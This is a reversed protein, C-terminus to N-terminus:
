QLASILVTFVTAAGVWFFFKVTGTVPDIKERGLVSDEPTFIESVFASVSSM